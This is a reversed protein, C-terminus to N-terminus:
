IKMELNTYKNILKNFGTRDKKSLEQIDIRLVDFVTADIKNRFM